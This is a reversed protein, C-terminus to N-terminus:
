VVVNFTGFCILNFDIKQLHKNFSVLLLAFSNLILNEPDEQKAVSYVLIYKIYSISNRPIKEFDYSSMRHSPIKAGRVRARIHTHTIEIALRDETEIARWPRLISIRSAKGLFVHYTADRVRIRLITWRNELTELTSCVSAYTRLAGNRSRDERGVGSVESSYRSIRERLFMRIGLWLGMTAALPPSRYGRLHCRKLSKIRSFGRNM